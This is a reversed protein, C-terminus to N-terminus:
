VFPAIEDAVDAGWGTIAVFVARVRGLDVRLM